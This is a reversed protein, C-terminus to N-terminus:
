KGKNRDGIPPGNYAKLMNEFDRYALILPTEDTFTKELDLIIQSTNHIQQELLKCMYCHSIIACRCKHPDKIENHEFACSECTEIYNESYYECDHQFVNTIRSKIKEVEGMNKEEEDMIKEVEDMMQENQCEEMIADINTTNDACLSCLCKDIEAMNDFDDRTYTYEDTWDYPSIRFGEEDFVIGGENDNDRVLYSNTQRVLPLVTLYEDSHCDFM